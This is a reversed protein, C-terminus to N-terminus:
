FRESNSYITFAAIWAAEEMPWMRNEAARPEQFSPLQCRTELSSRAGDEGLPGPMSSGAARSAVVGSQGTAVTPTSPSPSPTGHSSSHRYTHGAEDAEADEM